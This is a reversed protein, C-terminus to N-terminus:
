LPKRCLPCIGSSPVLDLISSRVSSPVLDEVLKLIKRSPMLDEVLRLIRRSLSGAYSRDSQKTRDIIQEIQNLEQLLMEHWESQNQNQQLLSRVHTLAPPLM